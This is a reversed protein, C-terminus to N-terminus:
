KLFMLKKTSSYTGAQLRCFYVGSPLRAANFTATYDGPAEVGDVLTAIERGLLDYVKLTVKGTIAIQYRIKTSPNFPNPYNQQLSFSAPLNSRQDNVGTKMESLPRTWIGHSATGAYLNPPNVAFSTIQDNPFGDSVRTWNMTYDSSLFIGGSDTGAFLNAGNAVLAYVYKRPSNIGASFWSTGTDVSRYVGGGFTGAFLNTGDSSVALSMSIYTPLGSYKGTWTSGYDSSLPGGGGAVFLNSDGSATPCLLFSSFIQESLAGRAWNAGGDTSRWLGGAGYDAAAFLNTGGTGNPTFAVCQVAVLSLVM